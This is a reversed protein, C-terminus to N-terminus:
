LGAKEIKRLARDIRKIRLVDKKKEYVLYDRKVDLAVYIEEIEPKNFNIM